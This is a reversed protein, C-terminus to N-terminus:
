TRRNVRGYVGDRMGIKSMVVQWLLLSEVDFAAKSSLLYYNWMRRFREDFRRASELQSIADWNKEFNQQWARLTDSYYHGYNEWDQVVFLDQFSAVLQQMSPIM